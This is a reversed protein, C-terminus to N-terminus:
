RSVKCNPLAAEIRKFGADTVATRGINLKRLTKLKLLHELGVDTIMTGTLMLTELNNLRAVHKLGADNVATSPLWLSKLSTPLHALGRGTIKAENLILTKLMSMNKLHQLGADTVATSNLRLDHLSTLNRVHGLGIDTIATYELNLTRIKPMDALNALGADTIKTRSLGLMYISKIPRVHQLGADTVNTGALGLYGLNLQSLHALGADTVATFNLDLESLRKMGKVHALGADTIKASNLGILVPNFCKIMELDKDTAKTKWLTIAVTTKDYPYIEGGLEEIRAKAAKQENTAAFTEVQPENPKATSKEVPQKPKAPSLEAGVEGKTKVVAFDLSGTVLRQISENTERIIEQSFALQYEGAVPSEFSPIRHSKGLGLGLTPIGWVQGPKLTVTYPGPAVWALKPPIAIADGRSNLVTPVNEYFHALYEFTVQTDGANRFFLDMPVVEGVAFRRRLTSFAVGMQIGLKAPGFKPKLISLREPTAHSAFFDGFTRVKIQGSEDKSVKFELDGSTLSEVTYRLKYLGSVPSKFSSTRHQKGLGLGLMPLRCAEGPKLKVRYPPQFVEMGTIGRVVEGNANTVHPAYAMRPAPRFHYTAEKKGVNLLFLETPIRDGISFEQRTGSYAVGLKLGNKEPGFIPKLKVIRELTGARWENPLSPLFGRAAEATVKDNDEGTNNTPKKATTPNKEIPPFEDARSERSVPQIIAIVALTLVCALTLVVAAARGLPQHNRNGDFLSRVRQELSSGDAMAIGLALGRTPSCLRAVQVLQEAYDSAREGAHIVADDCALEREQRLQRLGYWALPNFWHLTCAMRAILQHVVDRRKVHSLEHLLVTRQTASDWERAQRPVLVAPRFVGSTLPVIPTAHERIDVDRRLKLLQSLENRLRCWLGDAVLESRRRFCVARWVGIGFVIGFLSAGILWASVIMLGTRRAPKAIPVEAASDEATQTAVIHQEQHTADVHLASPRRASRSEKLGIETPMVAPSDIAAPVPLELTALAGAPTTSQAAPESSESAPLIPLRWAPLTWSVLPLLILSLMAMSWVSHRMAASARWPLKSALCAIALLVAGKVAIDIVLSMLVEATPSTTM